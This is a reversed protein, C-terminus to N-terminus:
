KVKIRIRGFLLLDMLGQKVRGLKANEKRHLKLKEVVTSIISSIKEQESLNPIPIKLSRIDAVNVHHATVGAELNRLKRRILPSYFVYVLFLPNLLRKDPRLLMTRQGLSFRTNKPALCAEGIPAERSFLVDDNEPICRRTRTQWEDETTYHAADLVLEGERINFNRVILVGKHMFKPTTHPCDVITTCVEELSKVEWEKPIEGIPTQKYEKHGMGETLLKQIMGEEFV